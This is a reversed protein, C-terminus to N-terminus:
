EVQSGKMTKAVEYDLNVVTNNGLKQQLATLLNVYDPGQALFEDTEKRFAYYCGSHQEVNINVETPPESDALQKQIHQHARALDETSVGIDKLIKKIMEAHFIKSLEVGIWIGAIVALLIWGFM